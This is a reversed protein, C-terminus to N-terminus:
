EGHMNLQPPAGGGPSDPPFMHKALFAIQGAKSAAGFTARGIKDLPKVWGPPSVQDPPRLSSQGVTGDRMPSGTTMPAGVTQASGVTQPNELTQPNALGQQSARSVRQDEGGSAKGGGTPATPTSSGTSAAATTTTTQAGSTMATGVTQPSDVSQVNALSASPSPAAVQVPGSQPSDGGGGSSPGSAAQTAAALTDQPVPVGIGGASQSGAAGQPLAPARGTAVTGQSPSGAPAPVGANAGPPAEVPQSPPPVKGAVAAGASGQGGVGGINPPGQATGQPVSQGAAPAASRTAPATDRGTAAGSPAGQPSSGSNASSGNGGGASRAPPSPQQPSYAGGGAGAGSGGSGSGGGSGSSGGGGSPGGPGGRGTPGAPGPGSGFSAASAISTGGMGGGGAGAAAGVMAAGRMALGAGGAAVLGMQVGAMGVSFLDGGTFAPSGALLSAAFKPVGWAVAAYVLSGGVLELVTDVPFVTLSIGSVLAGWNTTLGRGVGIVVYLVMIKVGVAVALSFFREVYPRTITNGGFGLFILGASVVIYSEVQAMIYHITIVIFALFIILASLIVMVAPAPNFLFGTWDAKSLLTGAIYLGEFFVDGPAAGAPMAAVQAGIDTFSNVIRDSFDPGNQLLWFFAFLVLFKRLFGAMWSQLDSRELLLLVGAWAMEVLALARFLRGAYQNFAAIAPIKSEQYATLINRPMDGPASPVAAYALGATLTMAVVIGLAIWLRRYRVAPCGFAAGATKGTRRRSPKAAAVQRAERRTQVAVRVLESLLVAERVM